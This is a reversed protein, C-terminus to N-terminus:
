DERAWDPTQRMSLELELRDLWWHVTAIDADTYGPDIQWWGKEQYVLLLDLDDKVALLAQVGLMGFLHPASGTHTDSLVRSFVDDWTDDPRKLRLRLSDRIEPSVEISVRPVRRRPAWAKLMAPTVNAQWTEAVADPIPRRKAAYLWALAQGVPRNTRPNNGCLNAVAEWTGLARHAWRMQLAIEPHQTDNTM